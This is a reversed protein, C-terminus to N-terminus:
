YVCVRERERDRGGLWLTNSFITLTNFLVMRDWFIMKTYGLKLSFHFFDKFHLDKCCFKCQCLFLWCFYANANLFWLCSSTGQCWTCVAILLDVLFCILFGEVLCHWREQQVALPFSYMSWRKHASECFFTGTSQSNGYCGYAILHTTGCKTFAPFLLGCSADAYNVPGPMQSNQWGM